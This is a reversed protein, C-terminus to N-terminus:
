ADTTSIKNEGFVTPGGPSAESSTCFEAYVARARRQNLHPPAPNAPVAPESDGVSTSLEGASSM